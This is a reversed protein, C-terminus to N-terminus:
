LTPSRLQSDEEQIRCTFACEFERTMLQISGVGVFANLRIRSAHAVVSARPLLVQAGPHLVGRRVALRAGRIRGTRPILVSRWSLLVCSFSSLSAFTDVNWLLWCSIMVEMSGFKGEVYCCSEYQFTPMGPYSLPSFVCHSISCSLVLCVCAAACMPPCLVTARLPFCACTPICALSAPDRWWKRSKPVRKQLILRTFLHDGFLTASTIFIM